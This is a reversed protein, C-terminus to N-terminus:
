LIETENVILDPPNVIVTINGNNHEHAVKTAKPEVKWSLTKNHVGFLGIFDQRISKTATIKLDCYILSNYKLWFGDTTFVQVGPAPARGFVRLDTVNGKEPCWISLDPFYSTRDANSNTVQLYYERSLVAKIKLIGYLILGIDTYWPFFR